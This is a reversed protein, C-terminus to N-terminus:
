DKMVDAFLGFASRLHLDRAECRSSLYINLLCLSLLPSGGLSWEKNIRFVAAARRKKGECKVGFYGTM